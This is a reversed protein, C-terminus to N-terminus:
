IDTGPGLIPAKSTSLGAWKLELQKWRRRFEKWFETKSIGPDAVRRLPGFSRAHLQGDPWRDAFDNHTIEQVHSFSDFFKKAEANSGPEYRYKPGNHKFEAM